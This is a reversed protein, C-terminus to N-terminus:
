VKSKIVFGVAKSTLVNLHEFSLILVIGALNGGVILLTDPKFRPETSPLLATLKTLQDIAKAYEETSPDLTKSHELVRDYAITLETPQPTPKKKFLM